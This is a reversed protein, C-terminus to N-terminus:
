YKRPSEGGYRFKTKPADATGDGDTDNELLPLNLNRKGKAIEGLQTMSDNYNKIIREPVDDDDCRNYLLYLCITKGYFLVSSNRANGEKVLEDTMNYRDLADGILSITEKVAGQFVEEATLEDDDLLDLLRQHRVMTKLDNQLLYSM